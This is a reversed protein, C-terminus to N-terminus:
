TYKLLINHQLPPFHAIETAPSPRIEDLVSIAKQCSGCTMNNKTVGGREDILKRATFPIRGASKPNGTKWGASKPIEMKGGPVLASHPNGSYRGSSSFLDSELAGATM